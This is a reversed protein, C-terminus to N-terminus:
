GIHILPIFWISGSYVSIFLIFSSAKNQLDVDAGAEILAKVTETHGGQAALMLAIVKNKHSYPILLSCASSVGSIVMINRLNVNAGAEILAKVTETHGGEAALM